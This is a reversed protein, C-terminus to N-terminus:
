GERSYLERLLRQAVEVASSEGCRATKTLGNDAIVEVWGNASSYVGHVARGRVRATVQNRDPEPEARRAPSM